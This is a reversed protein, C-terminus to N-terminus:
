KKGFLGRKKPPEPAPPIGTDAPADTVVPAGRGALSSPKVRNALPGSLPAYCNWCAARGTENQAVCRPCTTM